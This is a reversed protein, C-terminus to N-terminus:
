SLTTIGNHSHSVLSTNKLCLMNAIMSTHNLGCLEFCSAKFVGRILPKVAYALNFRGPLADIKIGLTYVGYSHVVDNSTVVSKLLSHFPTLLYSSCTNLPSVKQNTDIFIM